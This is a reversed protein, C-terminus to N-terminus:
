NVIELYGAIPKTGDRKDIVYFYTGDPLNNGLVSIGKNARGDFFIDINNYGQEEYVLTGARNYIHVINDPFNDICDIYFLENRGDNNRSIGNFPHIETQITVEKTTSCGQPSTVTVSYTGAPINELNPGTTIVGNNDWEISGIPVDNQIFLSVYGDDMDCTASQIGFNFDPYKPDEKIEANAPPSVCRTARSTATVTYIGIDLNEFYEGTFDPTAKVTNGIYWDFIYDQTNGNVSAALAGNPTLCSTVDSLVEPTVNPIALPSFNITIQATGSCGTVNNTGVVTYLMPKLENYESGEYVENGPVVLPGEYWEFTYDIFNGGVSASATGNPNSDDCISVPSIAMVTVIPMVQENAITVTIPSTECTMDNRDVAVVTYDGAARNSAPPVPPLQPVTSFDVAAKVTPGIYWNYDYDNSSGSTVTAFVAGDDIKCFTLPSASANLTIPSTVQQLTYTDTIKCGNSLNEVEVTFTVDTQAPPIAINSLTATSAVPLGAVAPGAYWDYDYGLTSTGTANVVLEGLINAPKLCRTPETFDMLDVTVTNMTEDEIEFQLLTTVCSNNPNTARVFYTGAMLGTITETVSALPTMTADFWEFTYDGVPHVVNGDERVETITASGDFATCQTLPTVTIDGSGISLTPTNDFVQMTRTAPCGTVNHTVQVTYFGAPLNTAVEGNGTTTGTTATGLAPAAINKGEFWNFTYNNPNTNMDISLTIEGNAVAGMCNINGDIQTVDIVPNTTIQLIETTIPTSRCDLTAANSSIAVLTYFGPTLNNNTTYNTTGNVGNIREIFDGGLAAGRALNLDNSGKYVQIEYDSEVFGVLNPINIKFEIQGINTPSCKDVDAQDVLQLIHADIYPLDLVENTECGNDRNTVVVTYVGSKMNIAKSSTVNSQTFFAVAAFPERGAFWKIDFGSSNSPASINVTMAGNNANCDSPFETIAEDVVISVLPAGDLVEATVPDTECFKTKHLAKVTYKGPALGDLVNDTDTYDPTAKVNEGDYWSFTYDSPTDLSVNVTVSGNPTTCNTTSAIAGVIISPTVPMNKITVEKTASCGTATEFVKVTYIGPSLNTITNASGKQNIPLTNQGAFWQFTYGTTQGGVNASATGNPQLPDCSTQDATVTATVVPAVTKTLSVTVPASKCNTITNTAVVTYNGATKNTHSPGSFDVTPKVANGKYWDFTFGATVGAVTASLGGANANNCPVDTTTATVVPPVVLGPVSKTAIGECGTAKDIVSVSYEKADLGSAVDSLSVPSGVFVVPGEFWAFTFNSTPAGGNVVARLQGNPPTCNDLAHEVVIDVTIINDVRLVEVTTTDSSCNATKHIAYVTYFGEVLSTYTAGVHDASAIPKAVTGNSWYFNYDSTNETAGNPIFARVAGNNPFSPDGGCKINDRIKLATISVPLPIVPVSIINDYDCEVFNTNPLSIPTPITTGADNLVIYLVFASGPGNVTLNVNLVQGISFNNVTLTSTNLKTAGALSPDGDYFSVPIDGSLSIDGKNLIEFSVEFNGDPCTPPVVTPTNNYAIDPAAYTPCGQSNLFPSQNLFNNLPRNPGVTCSGVSWILHHKQQKRPLTLDDNVNVNFYGHQNWLRRAPVWPEAASKFVRVHSYRSYSLDCFNNSANVDNFGCTVCLETSGDADVDAVIPYERQTRSICAQQSYISGDTGKIIYLFREDRYVVESSGDGNFDFLTCGTFGSTEENISIRWKLTLDENLAYLYKGSVFSVNLKGDGDLDAINLRGTGNQWGYKYYTGSSSPCGNVNFTAGDPDSYKLVANNKVDWFYVTTYNKGGIIEGGSTLVDLYGDLNYDAVSSANFPHKPVYGTLTRALTRTGSNATRTGLNIYYISGGSVLELNDDLTKAAMPNGDDLIDVAVPGGNIANWSNDDTSATNIIITGTHADLVMDKLYLEAKGDGDFDALGYEIADRSDNNSGTRIFRRWIQNLNCDYAYLYLDNGELGQFYLEACMDNDINALAIEWLPTFTVTTQKKITGDSGRLVFLKKTYRNMTVIEPIGDRDIDGISMRGIHNTTEDPSSFDLQMTFKPFQSPVAECLVDQGIYFGDCASNSSCDSDYCDIFGDFDDDIGNNCIEQAFSFSATALTLTLLFLLKRM